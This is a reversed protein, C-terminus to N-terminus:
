ASIFQFQQAVEQFKCEIVQLLADESSSRNLVDLCLGKVQTVVMDHRVQSGHPFGWKQTNLAVSCDRQQVLNGIGVEPDSNARLDMCRRSGENLLFAHGDGLDSVSWRQLASLNDCSHQIILAGALVGAPQLCKRSNFNIISFELTLSPVATAQLGSPPAAQSGTAFTLTGLTVVLGALAALAGRRGPWFRAMSRIGM